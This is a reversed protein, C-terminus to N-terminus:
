LVFDTAAISTVGVLGIEFDAKADGNVDGYVIIDSTKSSGDVDKSQYWVSNAKATTSNFLFAQDGTKATATNADIGSLDIKDIKTVFDYVKDRATGVKSETIANFDFVDKVKDGAGGYLSDSGLGGYLIDSGAEGKLTNAAANGTITNAM